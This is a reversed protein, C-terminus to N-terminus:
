WLTLKEIVLILHKAPTLTLVQSLINPFFSVFKRLVNQKAKTQFNENEFEKEM